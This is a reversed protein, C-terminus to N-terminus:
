LILLDKYESESISADLHFRNCDDGFSADDKALDLQEEITGIGDTSNLFGCISWVM